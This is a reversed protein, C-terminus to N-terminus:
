ARSLPVHEVARPPRPTPRLEVSGIERRTAISPAPADPSSVRAVHGCAVCDGCRPPCDDDDSCLDGAAVVGAFGALAVILLALIASAPRPRRV